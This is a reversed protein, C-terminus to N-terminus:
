FGKGPKWLYKNLDISDDQLFAVGEIELMERQLEYGTGPSLSIRGRSNIIRHWPLGKKDSSSNLIWAIQRAARHNGAFAAIQGYTAVNGAPIQKIIKVVNVYFDSSM